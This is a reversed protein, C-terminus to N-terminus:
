ETQSLPTTRQSLIRIYEATPDRKEEHQSHQFSQQPSHTVHQPHELWHSLDRGICEQLRLIDPQFHARLQYQFEEDPGNQQQTHKAASQRKLWEGLPTQRAADILWRIYPTNLLRQARPFLVHNYIKDMSPPAFRDEIHLFTFLDALVRQPSHMVEDYLFIKVQARDYYQFVREIQEAYLGLNILYQSSECAQQFSMGTYVDEYFLTYASFARQVPERLVVFLQADPITSALRPLAEEANLYNPTIEGIAKQGTYASFQEQYWELGREFHTDFFHLEKHEPVFVQPHEKLCHYLWTTAARQAGIGVFNPLPTM